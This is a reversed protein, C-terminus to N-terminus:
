DKAPYEVYIKSVRIVKDDPLSVIEAPKVLEFEVDVHLYECKTYLYRTRAPFQMGGDPVMYKEVDRRTKADKLQQYDKLAQEMLACTAPNNNQGRGPNVWFLTGLLLAVAYLKAVKKM